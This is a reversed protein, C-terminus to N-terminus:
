PKTAVPADIDQLQQKQRMPDTFLSYVIMLFVGTCLFSDAVNFIYPFLRPWHPLGTSNFRPM